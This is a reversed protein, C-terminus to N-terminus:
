AATNVAKRLKAVALRIHASRAEYLWLLRRTGTWGGYTRIVRLNWVGIVRIERSSLEVLDNGVTLSVFASM